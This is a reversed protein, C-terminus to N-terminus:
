QIKYNNIKYEKESSKAANSDVTTPSFKEEDTPAHM